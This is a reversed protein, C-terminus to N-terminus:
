ERLAEANRALERSLVDIYEALARNERSPQPGLVDADERLQKSTAHLAATYGNLYAAGKQHLKSRLEAIQDDTM